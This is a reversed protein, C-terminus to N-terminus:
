GDIGEEKKTLLPKSLIKIKHKIKIKKSLISALNLLLSVALTIIKVTPYLMAIFVAFILMAESPIPVVKVFGPM